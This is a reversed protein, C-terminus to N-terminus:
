RQRLEIIILRPLVNVYMNEIHCFMECLKPCDFRQTASLSTLTVVCIHFRSKCSLIEKNKQCNEYVNLYNVNISVYLKANMTNQKDTSIEAKNALSRTFLYKKKTDPTTKHVTSLM